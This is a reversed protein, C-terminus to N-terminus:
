KSSCKCVVMGNVADMDIWSSKGDFKLGGQWRHLTGHAVLFPSSKIFNKEIDTLLLTVGSHGSLTATSGIMPLHSITEDDKEIFFTYIYLHDREISGSFM